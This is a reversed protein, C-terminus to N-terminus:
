KLLDAHILEETMTMRAIPTNGKERFVPISNQMHVVIGSQITGLFALLMMTRAFLSSTSSYGRRRTKVGIKDRMTQFKERMLPKTLGDALQNETPVMRIAMLIAMILAMITATEMETAMEQCTTSLLLQPRQYRRQMKRDCKLNKRREWDWAKRFAGHKANDFSSVIRSIAMSEEIKVGMEQLSRCLREIERYAATSRAMTNHKNLTSSDSNISMSKDAM